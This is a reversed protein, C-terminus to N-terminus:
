IIYVDSNHLYKTWTQEILYIQFMGNRLTWSLLPGASCSLLYRPLIRWTWPAVAHPSWGPPLLSFFVLSYVWIKFTELIPQINKYKKTHPKITKVHKLVEQSKNSINNKLNLYLHNQILDDFTTRQLIQLHQQKLLRHFGFSQRAERPHRGNGAVRIKRWGGTHHRSTEPRKIIIHPSDHHSDHHINHEGM